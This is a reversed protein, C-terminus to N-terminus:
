QKDNKEYKKLLPVEEAVEIFKDESMAFRREFEAVDVIQVFKENDPLNLAAKVTEELKKEGPLRPISVTRNTVEATETNVLMVTVDAGKFTRSIQPTRAM